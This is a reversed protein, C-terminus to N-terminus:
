LKVEGKTNELAVEEESEKLVVLTDIAGKVFLAKYLNHCIVVFMGISSVIGIAYMYALPLGTAPSLTETTMLTMELSGEFFIWLCALVIVNSSVFCIKKPLPPLKQVLSTFGLHNNDKLAGIAGMFVIWVFLFRSLEEAWTFGSNFFYRLLVNGFIFIGMLALFTAMIASFLSEIRLFQKNMREEGLHNKPISALSGNSLSNKLLTAGKLIRNFDRLAM